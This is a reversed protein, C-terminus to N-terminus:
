VEPENEPEYIIGRDEFYERAAEYFGDDFGNWLDEAVLVGDESVAICATEDGFEDHEMLFFQKSEMEIQGITHWTGEHGEISLGSTQDTVQIPEKPELEEQRQRVCDRLESFGLSDVFYAQVQGDRNLLIVDSVSLSHGTYDELHNLNFREFLSDLTEQPLLIGSYILNYEDGIIKWGYSRIHEMDMFRKDNGNCNALQYIAYRSNVTDPALLLEENERCVADTIKENFTTIDMGVYQNCFEEMTMMGSVFNLGEGLRLYGREPIPLPLLTLVAGAHNVIVRREVTVPEGPDYDSGRLDYCYLGEPVKEQPIRGNSFLAPLGFIEVEQYRKRNRKIM